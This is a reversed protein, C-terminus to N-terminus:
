EEDLDLEVEDKGLVGQEDAVKSGDGANRKRKGRLKCQELYTNGVIRHQKRFYDLFEREVGIYNAANEDREKKIETQIRKHELRGEVLFSGWKCQGNEASSYKAKYLQDIEQIKKQEETLEDEAVMENPDVTKDDDDDDDDDEDDDDDDEDDPKKKKAASKKQNKQSMKALLEKKKTKSVKKPLTAKWDGAENEYYEAM